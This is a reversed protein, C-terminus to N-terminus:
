MGESGRRQITSATDDNRVKYLEIKDRWTTAISRLKTVYGPDEAYIGNIKQLYKDVTEPKKTKFVWLDWLVRDLISHQWNMYMGYGSYNMGKIQLSPRSTPGEGIKKMGFYNSANKSVNSTGSNSEIIFQAMIIEPYWAGSEVIMKFVSDMETPVKEKYTAYKGALTLVNIYERDGNLLQYEAVEQQLVQNEKKIQHNCIFTIGIFLGFILFAVTKQKTGWLSEVPNTTVAVKGPHAIDLTELTETDVIRVTTNYTKM